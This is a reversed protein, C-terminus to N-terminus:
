CGVNDLVVAGVRPSLTGTGAERALAKKPHSDHEKNHQQSVITVVNNHHIRDDVWTPVMKTRIFHEASSSILRFIFSTM